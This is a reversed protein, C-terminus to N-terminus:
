KVITIRKVKHPADFGRFKIELAEVEGPCEKLFIAMEPREFFDASVTLDGGHCCGVMRAALNITTGFYDLRGEANVALCPGAHLSSKLLLDKERGPNAGPLKQHMQRVAALAEDVRSFTAMVADGMTKVLTGHHERVAENLVAFHNRVMAYAPADGVHRYMATSGRLDTFLVVQSGVSVQESPSIVESSFLDRFEQWNTAQAATLVDDSWEHRTLSVLVPFTHLNVLRTTGAPESSKQRKLEFKTADCTILLEEDARPADDRQLMVPEKVQLSQLRLPQSLDPLRWAREENPELWIQGVVHPKGGPGALCFTREERSRIAPNVAFKLEVSKDFEADYKIQCVECHSASKLQGLSTIQPSRSSRCNPCLIEWSLDLLGARTAHLFLRFVAWRDQQWQRALAFPRIHALEVDPSERLWSELRQAIDGTADADRLRKLGSQLAAENVPQKPLGPLPVHAHGRLFEEVHAMVRRTDRRTKPGILQKALFKGVASRPVFEGSLTVRTGGATRELTTGFRGEKFPGGEFIRRVRYYEPELWEFPLERWRLERGFVRTKGIVTSEGEDRPTVEYDVPPLGFSRNLWDTKSLIPWLAEPPFAFEHQTEFRIVPM